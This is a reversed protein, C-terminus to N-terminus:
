LDYIQPNYEGYDRVLEGAISNAEDEWHSGSSGEKPDGTLEGNQNQKHHVLEHAISRIIDPLARNKSLIRVKNDTIDYSALTELEDSDDVLEVSFDDKLGLEDKTFDVFDTIVSEELPLLPDRKEFNTPKIKISYEKEISRLIQILLPGVMQQAEGKDLGYFNELRHFLMDIMKDEGMNSLYYDDTFLNMFLPVKYFYETGVEISYDSPIQAFGQTGEVGAMLGQEELEKLVGYAIEEMAWSHPMQKHPAVKTLPNTYGDKRSYASEDFHFRDATFDSQQTDVESVRWGRRDMERWDGMINEVYDRISSDDLVEDVENYVVKVPTVTIDKMINDNIYDYFKQQKPNSIEEKLLSDTNKEVIKIEDGPTIVKLTRGNEWNVDIHEEMDSGFQVTNIDDVVGKTGKKIPDWDDQMNIMEITDGPLPKDKEYIERIWQMLLPMIFDKDKIMDLSYTEEIYPILVNNALRLLPSYWRLDEKTIGDIGYQVRTELRNLHSRSTLMQPTFTKILDNLIVQSLTRKQTEEKLIHKILSKM